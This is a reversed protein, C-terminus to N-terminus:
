VLDDMLNQSGFPSPVLKGAPDASQILEAERPGCIWYRHTALQMMPLDSASDSWAEVYEVEIGASQRWQEVMRLKSPGYCPEGDVEGTYLGQKTAFVTGIVEAPLHSVSERVASEFSATVVLILAGEAACHHLRDVLPPRMLSRIRQGFRKLPKALGSDSQGKLLYGIVKNKAAQISNGNRFLVARAVYWCVRPFKWPQARLLEFCLYRTTDRITLTGDFDVLVCKRM